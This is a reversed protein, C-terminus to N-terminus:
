TSEIGAYSLARLALRNLRRMYCWIMSDFRSLKMGLADALAVLKREMAFYDRRVCETASFLGMLFGARIIHVDLIAVDDAGLSNRTIWSATKPGIGRFKLLWDRMERGTATPPDELNLRRMAAWVFGAKARPFRYKVLRSGIQLPERLACEIAVETARGDLLHWDRLRKFAALGVEAPMGHGGLLCAALDERFSRGIAYSTFDSDDGDIWDRAVWFAPTFFEDFKGWRVGPVVDSEAPPLSRQV